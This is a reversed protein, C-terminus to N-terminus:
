KKDSSHGEKRHLNSPLACSNAEGIRAAIRRQM